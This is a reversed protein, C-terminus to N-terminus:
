CLEVFFLFKIKMLLCPSCLISKLKCCIDRIGTRKPKQLPHLKRLLHIQQVVQRLLRECAEVVLGFNHWPRLRGHFGLAFRDGQVLRPRMLGASSAAQCPTPASLAM